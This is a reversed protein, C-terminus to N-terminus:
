RAPPGKLRPAPPWALWWAPGSAVLWAPEFHLSRKEDRLQNWTHIVHRGVAWLVVLAVATKTATIALRKWRPRAM